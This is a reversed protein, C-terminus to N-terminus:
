SYEHGQPCGPQSPQAGHFMEALYCTVVNLVCFRFRTVKGAIEKSNVGSVLTEYLDATTNFLSGAANNAYDHQGGEGAFYLRLILVASRLNELM